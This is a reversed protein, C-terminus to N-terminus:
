QNQNNGRQNRRPGPFPRPEGEMWERRNGENKDELFDPIKNGNSDTKVKLFMTFAAIAAPSFMLTGLAILDGLAAIGTTMWNWIWGANYMIFLYAYAWLIVNIWRYNKPTKGIELVKNLSTKIASIFTKM